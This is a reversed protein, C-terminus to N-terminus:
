NLCSCKGDKLSCSGKDKCSKSADVFSISHYGSKEVNQCVKGEPVPLVSASWKGANCVYYGSGCNCQNECTKEGAVCRQQQLFMSCKENGYIRNACVNQNSADCLTEIHLEKSKPNIGCIESEIHRYLLSYYRKIFSIGM